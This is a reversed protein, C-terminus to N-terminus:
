TSEPDEPLEALRLRPCQARILRSQDSGPGLDFVERVGREQLADLCLDWLIPQALQRVLSERVGEADRVPDASIGALVGQRPAQVPEAALVRRWPEQAAALWPTHSPCRVDIRKLQWQPADAEALLASVDQPRGGWVSDRPGRRIALALGHRQLAAQRREAAAPPLPGGVRLLCAHALPAEEAPPVGSTALLAETAADMAAARAAALRPLSAYALSGAIAHAALEGVSYGIVWAPTGCRRRARLWRLAQATVVACQADRNRARAPADLARWYDLWDAGVLASAAAWVEHMEEPDGARPRLVAFDLGAQEGQGACVLACRLPPASM